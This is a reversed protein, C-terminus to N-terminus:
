LTQVENVAEGNVTGTMTITGNTTPPDTSMNTVMEMDYVLNATQVFVVGEKEISVTGDMTMSMDMTLIGTDANMSTSNSTVEVNMSGSLTYSKGEYKVVYDNYTVTMTMLGIVDTDYSMTITSSGGHEGVNTFEDSVLVRASAATQSESSAQAMVAAAEEKTMTPVSKAVDVCGYFSVGALLAIMILNTKKM